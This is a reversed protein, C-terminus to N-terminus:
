RLVLTKIVVYMDTWKRCSCQMNSIALKENNM